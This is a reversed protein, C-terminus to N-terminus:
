LHGGGGPLLHTGAFGKGLGFHGSACSARSSGSLAWHQGPGVTGARVGLLGTLTRTAGACLGGAGGKAPAQRCQTTTQAGQSVTISPAMKDCRPKKICNLSILTM